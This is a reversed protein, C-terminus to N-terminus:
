WERYPRGNLGQGPALSYVDYVDRGESPADHPSDYSRLGWTLEAPLAADRVLPDRPLRRLFHIRRREASRADDVGEVLVQLTPPYGSADAQRDIRGEDGARKYADIAQRIERLAARLEQEQSRRAALEAVPLAMTALLSVIAVTVLLEILTFGRAAVAPRRM